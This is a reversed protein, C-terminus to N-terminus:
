TMNGALILWGAAWLYGKERLAVEGRFESKLSESSGCHLESSRVAIFRTHFSPQKWKRRVLRQNVELLNKILPNIRDERHRRGTHGDPSSM